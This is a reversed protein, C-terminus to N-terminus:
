ATLFKDLYQSDIFIANRGEIGGGVDGFHFYQNRFLLSEIEIIRLLRDHTNIEVCILKPRYTQYDISALIDYDGGEVDISLFDPFKGGCYKTIIKDLTEVDVEITSEVRKGIRNLREIQQDQLTSLAPSDKIIYLNLRGSRFGVACNLNCDEPRLNIFEDFLDPNPEINVGRSGMEYLLATNSLKTPHHAGIDIYSPKEIGLINFIYVFLKDEQYQSYTNKTELRNILKIIESHQMLTFCFNKQEKTINSQNLFFTLQDIRHLIRASDIKNREQIVMLSEELRRLQQEVNIHRVSMNQLSKFAYRFDRAKSKFWNIM